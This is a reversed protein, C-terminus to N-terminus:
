RWVGYRADLRRAQRFHTEAAATQGLKALSCGLLFYSLASSKDLSLAQQLVVQSSQYDGLRYYAAGLVRRLVASDAFRELAPELLAVAVDPQNHRLAATAASIPIQPDHPNLAMAERFCALALPRDGASMATSGAQILEDLSILATPDFPGHQDAADATRARDAPHGDPVVSHTDPMMPNPSEPRGKDESDSAEVYASDSDEIWLTPEASAYPGKVSPIPQISAGVDEGDFVAWPPLDASTEAPVNRSISGGAALDAATAASTPIAPAVPSETAPIRGEGSELMTEYSLAYTENDPELEAARRYHALAAARQGISDMLLGMTYQVRANEPHAALMPDLQAIAERPRETIFLLEALLLRAVPHDPSRALIAELREQCGDIDGQDWLAQAAVLQARDRGADMRSVAARNRQQRKKSVDEVRPLSPVVSACGAMMVTVAGLLWVPRLYWRSVNM